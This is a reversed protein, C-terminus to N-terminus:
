VTNLFNELQDTSHDIYDKEKMIKEIDNQAKIDRNLNYELNNTIWVTTWGLEHPCKLNIHLDEFMATENNPLNFKKQFADYIPMHPKPLYDSESIDFYGDFVGNM